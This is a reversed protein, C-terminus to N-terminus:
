LRVAVIAYEVYPDNRVTGAHRAAHALELTALAGYSWSPIWSHAAVLRTGWSGAERIPYARVPEFGADMLGNFYTRLTLDRSPAVQELMLLTAGKRAARSMERLSRHFLRASTVCLVSSCLIFDFGDAELAPEDVTWLAINRAHVGAYWRAAEVMAPERDVAYVEGSYRALLPLFRGTGCGFDLARELPAARRMEAELVKVHLAHMYRNRRGSRDAADIVGRLPGMRSREAWSIGGAGAEGDWVSDDRTQMLANHAGHM